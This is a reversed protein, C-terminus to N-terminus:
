SDSVDGPDAMPGIAGILQLYGLKADLIARVEPGGLETGEDVARQVLRDVLGDDLVETQAIHPGRPGEVVLSERALGRADLDELEWDLVKRVDWYTVSGTLDAPLHEAIYAVAEELDFVPMPAFSDLRHAERGIAGAAIAFVLVVGIIGVVVAVIM